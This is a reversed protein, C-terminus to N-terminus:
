TLKLLLIIFRDLSKARIIIILIIKLHVSFVFNLLLLVPTTHRCRTHVLYVLMTDNVAFSDSLLDLSLELLPNDSALGTLM